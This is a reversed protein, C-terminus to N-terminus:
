RGRPEVAQPAQKAVGLRGAARARGGTAPVLPFVSGLGHRPMGFYLTEVHSAPVVYTEHWIGVAGSRAVSRYFDAWAPFHEGSRDSAYAYLDDHSRWYQVSLTPSHIAGLFGSEPRAELEKIMRSMARATRWWRHVAWWKHIRAGILFVVVDQDLDVTMREMIPAAM